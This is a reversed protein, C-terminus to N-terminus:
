EKAKTLFFNAGVLKLNYKEAFAIANWSRRSAPEPNHEVANNPITIGGAPEQFLLFIYRHFGTGAPPGPPFYPTAAAKVKLAYVGETETANAAPLKVGPLVWHRWQGFKPDTRSPADPDTMVLTYSLEGEQSTGAVESKPAVMPLIKIEPEEITLDRAIKSGLMVETGTSPWVVTFLVSPSFDVSAPIVDPIVQESKLATTVKTLPDSMAEVTHNSHYYRTLDPRPQNRDLHCHYLTRGTDAAPRTWATVPVTRWVRSAGALAGTVTTGIRPM